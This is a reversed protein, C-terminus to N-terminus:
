ELTQSVWFKKKCEVKHAKVWKKGYKRLVRRQYLLYRRSTLIMVNNDIMVQHKASSRGNDDKGFRSILQQTSDYNEFFHDGKIEVLRKISSIYFDPYYFHQKGKADFYKIAKDIPHCQVDIGFDRCCVYFCFEPLSDFSYGDIKYCGNRRNKMIKKRVLPSKWQHDVGYKLMCRNRRHQRELEKQEQSKNKNTEHAKIRNNWNEDGYRDKKTAKIKQKKEEVQWVNTIGKGYKAEIAVQYEKKGKECKMNNDVGYHDVFTDKAKQISEDAFYKGNNKSLRTKKGENCAYHKACKNSCFPRYGQQVNKFQKPDDIPKGCVICKPFDELENLVWHVRQQTSYRADLHCTAEQLWKYIQRNEQKSKEHQGCKCKRSASNLINIAQSPSKELLVKLKSLMAQDYQTNDM